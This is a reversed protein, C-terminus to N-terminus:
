NAFLGVDDFRVTGATAADTPSFGVLNVRVSAVGAPITVTQELKSFGSTTLPATILNVTNLIQGAAGLYVLGATAASSAGSAQVSVVLALSEGPVVAIPDSTWSPPGSLLANGGNGTLSASKSGDSGGSSWSANGAGSSTGSWNEPGNGATNQQEFSGNQVKNGKITVTRTSSNNTESSEDVVTGRDATVRITHDGRVSRTDWQVSVSATGGAAIGPTSVNGLVTAGDLLFETQSAGAAANGSNSITATLTVKDGERAQNNSAVVNTVQLDAKPPPTVANVTATVLNSWPGPVVQSGFTYTSRVRYCYTGSARGSVRFSTGSTTAVDTWNSNTVTIDDVYWGYPTYFFYNSAGVYARFRLLISKGAFATLSVEKRALPQTAFSVAADSAIEARGSSYVEMWTAGGDESAEVFVKDDLENVEWDSFALTTTGGAPIAIPLKTTMTVSSNNGFGEPIEGWFATSGHQPKANSTQWTFRGTSLNWKAFGNQADDTFLAGCSTTSEQLVDPGTAGAPRTWTLTYAGDPDPNSYDPGLSLTPAQLAPCKYVRVDDVFWGTVGNCGDIGFDFRIKVVDGPNTLASLDVVTTGWSGTTEGGNAGHWAFEGAKPNTNASTAILPNLRSRPASYIYHEQPVLQFPAGNVSIKVNGGDYGLESEMFHDFRMHVTGADAPLTIGPSDIWYQGSYDGGPACTGGRSDVAFAAKGARGQPLSSVVDWLYNAQAFDPTVGQNARTWGNLGSEWTESFITGSGPCAAPPSAGILPQFNCQAPPASMEVALMAKAVEGCHAATIVEGSPAGGTFLGALNVGILDQCASQLAQAHQPFNTTPTQYATMARYYIHAARTMGIPQVTQGNFEKGDVLIVFAHNPVGSNTHVGGGDSTDCHYNSSTVKSPNRLREPNWMDRLLLGQEATAFDELILWRQGAPYVQANNSGGIGDQNNLLDVIEGWIDSYSENLAGSQYSYILDHTYQTYAHGWEHAVVDDVDFGPCYNTSSGNWYANPCVQNVLYVSHMTGGVGDFSDRGFTGSFLGYVQGAFDFLNKPSGALPPNQETGVITASSQIPTYIIRNLAHPNLSIRNLIEGTQADVFVQERVDPEASIVVAYALASEGPRGELLGKRYIMLEVKQVQLSRDNITKRLSALASATAAEPAVAPEPTVRVEPVFHGNVATIGEGDMHVVVEAGFVPIGAFFQRLRVHQQGLTDQDVRHLRLESAAAAPPEASAKRADASEVARRERENMGLLAGHQALFARARGEAPDTGRDRLLHAGARARVFSYHGTEAAPLADVAGAASRQLQALAERAEPAIPAELSPRAAAFVSTSSAACFLALLGVGAWRIRSKPRM